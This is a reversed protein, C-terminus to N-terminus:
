TLFFKGGLMTNGNSKNLRQVSEMIKVKELIKEGYIEALRQKGIYKELSQNHGKGVSNRAFSSLIDVRNMMDKQGAKRLTVEIEIGSDIAKKINAANREPSFGTDPTKAIFRFDTPDLDDTTLFRKM